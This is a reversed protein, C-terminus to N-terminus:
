FLLNRVDDAQQFKGKSNTGWLSTALTNSLDPSGLSIQRGPVGYRTTPRPGLAATQAHANVVNPDLSRSVQSSGSTRRNSATPLFGISNDDAAGGNISSVSFVDEDDTRVSHARNLLTGTGMSEATQSYPANTNQQSRGLKALFEDAADLEADLNDSGPTNGTPDTRPAAIPPKATPKFESAGQFDDSESDWEDTSSATLQLNSSAKTGFTIVRQDHSFHIDARPSKLPSSSQGIRKPSAPTNRVTEVSRASRQIGRGGDATTQRPSSPEPVSENAGGRFHLQPSSLQFRPKHDNLRGSGTSRVPSSALSGSRSDPKYDHGALTPMSHGLPSRLETSQSAMPLTGARRASNPSHSAPPPLNANTMSGSKVSTRSGMRVESGTLRHIPKGSLAAHALRDVQQALAERIEMFNSHKRALQERERRLSALRENLEATSLRTQTAGIGREALQELLLQEVEHRLGRLTEPDARLQDLLRSYRLVSVSLNPSSAGSTILMRGMARSAQLDESDDEKPEGLKKAQDPSRQPTGNTMKRGYSSHHESGTLSRVSVASPPESPVHIDMRVSSKSSTMTSDEIMHVSQTRVAPPCEQDSFPTPSGVHIVRSRRVPSTPESDKKYAVHYVGNDGTLPMLHISRSLDNLEQYGLEATFEEDDTRVIVIERSQSLPRGADKKARLTTSKYSGTSSGSRSVPRRVKLFVPNDSSRLIEVTKPERQFFTALGNKGRGVQIATSRVRKRVRKRKRSPRCEEIDDRERPCNRKCLIGHDVLHSHSVTAKAVVTGNYINRQRQIGPQWPQRKPTPLTLDSEANDNDSERAIHNKAQELSITRSPRDPISQSHEQPLNLSSCSSAVSGHRKLKMRNSEDVNAVSNETAFQLLEGAKMVPASFKNGQIPEWVKCTQSMDTMPACRQRARLEALESKTAAHQLQIERLEKEFTLRLLEVDRRHEDMMATQWEPPRMADFRFNAQNGTVANAQVEESGDVFQSHFLSRQNSKLQSLLERVDKELSGSTNNNQTGAIDSSLPHLAAPQGMSQQIPQHHVNESHRRHIHAALFSANLFAKPCYSCRHYSQPGSDMLQQQALLLLRRRHCERRVATLRNTKEALQQQISKLEENEEKLANVTSKLYDQSYLLYEVLLQALQFLKILNADVYRIDIESTIDCFAVCSLLEQLTEIDIQSAIRNVDVSALRRWDIKEMRKRFIFPQSSTYNEPTGKSIIM